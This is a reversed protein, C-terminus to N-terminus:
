VPTPCPAELADRQQRTVAVFQFTRHRRLLASPILRLPRHLLRVRYQTAIQCIRASPVYRSYYVFPKGRCFAFM